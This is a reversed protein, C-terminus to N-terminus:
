QIHVKFTGNTDCSDTLESECTFYSRRNSHTAGNSYKLISFFITYYIFMTLSVEKVSFSGKTSSMMVHHERSDVAFTM